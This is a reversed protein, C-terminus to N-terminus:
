RAEALAADKRADKDLLVERCSKSKTPDPHCRKGPRIARAAPERCTRDGSSVCSLPTAADGAVPAALALLVAIM